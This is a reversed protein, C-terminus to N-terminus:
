RQGKAIDALQAEIQTLVDSSSFYVPESPGLVLKQDPDTDPIGGVFLETRDAYQRVAALRGFIARDDFNYGFCHGVFSSTIDGARTGREEDPGDGARIM